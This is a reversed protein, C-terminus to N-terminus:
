SSGLMRLYWEWSTRLQTVYTQYTSLFHSTLKFSKFPPKVLNEYARSLIKVVLESLMNLIIVYTQKEQITLTRAQPSIFKGEALEYIPISQALSLVFKFFVHNYIHREFM